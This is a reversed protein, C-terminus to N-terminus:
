WQSDVMGNEVKHMLVDKWYPRVFGALEHPTNSWYEVANRGGDEVHAGVCVTLCLTRSTGTNTDRAASGPNGTSQPIILMIQLKGPSKKAIPDDDGTM